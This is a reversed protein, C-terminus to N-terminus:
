HGQRCQANQNDGPNNCTQDWGLSGYIDFRNIGDPVFTLPGWGTGGFPPFCQRGPKTQNEGQLPLIDIAGPLAFRCGPNSYSLFITRPLIIIM